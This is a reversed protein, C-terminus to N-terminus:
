KKRGATNIAEPYCDEVLEMNKDELNLCLIKQKLNM